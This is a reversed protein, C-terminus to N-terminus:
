RELLVSYFVFQNNTGDYFCGSPQGAFAACTGGSDNGELTEPAGPFAYGNEMDVSIVDATASASLLTPVATSGQLACDTTDIAFESNVSECVTQSVNPLFAIIDNGTVATSVGIDPVVFEANFHWTGQANGAMLDAQGRQYVAGGGTPHFVGQATTTLAGFGSPPNFELETAATGSLIMRILSTRLAAPYQTMSAGSLIAQERDASGGGSRTSQTVAYSLAAFLAVAILILFLVNGSESKRNKTQHGM